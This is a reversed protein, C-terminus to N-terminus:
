IATVNRLMASSSPYRGFGTMAIFTSFLKKKKPRTMLDGGTEKCEAMLTHLAEM